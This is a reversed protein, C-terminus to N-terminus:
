FKYERIEVFDNLELLVKGQIDSFNHKRNSGVTLRGRASPASHDDDSPRQGEAQPRTLDSSYGKCKTKQPFVLFFPISEQDMRALNGTM